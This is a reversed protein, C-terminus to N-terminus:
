KMNNYAEVRESVNGRINSWFLDYDLLHHNGQGMLPLDDYVDTRIGSVHLIGNECQGDSVGPMVMKSAM